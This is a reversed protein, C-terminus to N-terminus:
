LDSAAHAAEPDDNDDAADNSVRPRDHQPPRPLARRRQLPQPGRAPPNRQPQSRRNWKVADKLSSRNRAPVLKILVQYTPAVVSDLLLFSLLNILFVAAVVGLPLIGEFATLLIGAIVTYSLCVWLYINGTGLWWLILRLLFTTVVLTAVGTVGYFLGFFETIESETPYHERAIVNFAYHMATYLALVVVSLLFLLRLYSSRVFFRLNESLPAAEGASKGGESAVFYRRVLPRLALIVAAMNVVSLGYLQYPPLLSGLLRVAFGGTIDGLIASAALLPFLVKTRSTYCIGGAVIWIQFGVLSRALESSIFLFSYFETLDVAHLHQFLLAATNAVLVAGICGMMGFLLRRRSVRATMWSLVAMCLAFLVAIWSYM